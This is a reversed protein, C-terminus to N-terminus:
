KKDTKVAEPLSYTVKGAEDLFNIKPTGDAAVSIQIREKGKADSLSIFSSKNRGKGIALRNVLFEGKNRMEKFAAQRAAEDPLKKIAEFKATREPTTINEDNFSLGAFYNGEKNELHQFAITQDGRFKDFTLSGFQGKDIDGSFVLGGVEDGRENFFLMGAPRKDEKERPIPKGDVVGPHQREKNSIVMKLKGDKEVVNIREVDIEEFKQKKNQIAFGTLLFVTCALTMIVAYTKLFRVEKEIKTEMKIETEMVIIEVFSITKLDLLKPLSLRRVGPMVRRANLVSVM